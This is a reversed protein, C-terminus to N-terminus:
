SMEKRAAFYEFAQRTRVNCNLHNVVVNGEDNRTLIGLTYEANDLVKTLEGDIELGRERLWRRLGRETEFATHPTGWGSTITYWYNCTRAHQEPALCCLKLNTFKGHM